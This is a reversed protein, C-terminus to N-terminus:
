LEGLISARVHQMRDRIDNRILAPADDWGGPGFQAEAYAVAMEDVDLGAALGISAHKREDDRVQENLDRGEDDWRQVSGEEVDPHANWMAEAAREISPMPEDTWARYTGGDIDQRIELRWKRTHTM